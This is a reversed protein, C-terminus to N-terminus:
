NKQTLEVKRGDPDLVVANYGWPQMKPQVHISLNAQSLSEIKDDLAEVFFGLRTTTDVKTDKKSLPYIEFIAGSDDLAAAYHIPGKGHKHQEFSLGIQSYFDRLAELQHTRIMILSLGNM